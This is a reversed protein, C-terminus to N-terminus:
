CISVLVQCVKTLLEHDTSLDATIRSKGIEIQITSQATETRASECIAWGPHKPPQQPVLTTNQEKATTEIIAAERLKRQWYHYVNQRLGISECYAKISKGSESRERMIQAWHNLRYEAAIERTNVIVQM